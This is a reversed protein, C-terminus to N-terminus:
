DVMAKKVLADIGSQIETLQKRATSLAHKTQSPLLDESGYIAVQKEYHDITFQTSEKLDHLHFWRQKEQDNLM